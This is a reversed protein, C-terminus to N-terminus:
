KKSKQLFNLLRSVLGPVKKKRRWPLLPHATKQESFLRDIVDGVSDPVAKWPVNLAFAENSNTAKEWREVPHIDDHIGKSETYWSSGEHHESSRNFAGCWTHELLADLQCAWVQGPERKLYQTCIWARSREGKDIRSINLLAPYGLTDDKSRLPENRFYLENSDALYLGEGIAAFMAFTVAYPISLRVSRYKTGPGYEEPSDEAIWRLRRVHPPLQHVLILYPDRWEVFKIGDPLASGNLPPLIEKKIMELLDSETCEFKGGEKTTLVVKSNLIKLQDSKAVM